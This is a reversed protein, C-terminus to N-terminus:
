VIVVVLVLKRIVVIFTAGLEIGIGPLQKGVPGVVEACLQSDAIRLQVVPLVRYSVVVRQRALLGEGFHYDFGIGVDVTVSVKCLSEHVQAAVVGALGVDKIVIREVELEFAGPSQTVM